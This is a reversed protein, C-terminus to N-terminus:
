TDRSVTAKNESANNAMGEEAVPFGELHEDEALTYRLLLATSSNKRRQCKNEPKKQSTPPALYPLTVLTHRMSMM